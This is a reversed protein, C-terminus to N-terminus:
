AGLSAGVGSVTVGVIRVSKCRSLMGSQISVRTPEVDLVGDTLTLVESNAAGGVHPSPASIELRVRRPEIGLIRSRQTAPMLDVLIPIGEGVVSTWDEPM